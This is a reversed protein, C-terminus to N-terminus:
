VRSDHNNIVKAPVGFATSGAPIDKLVLAGAGILCDKGIQVSQIVTAGTGVHTGSGIRVMGSLTVGPALHVHDGIICDHDISAKTNVIANKGIRSGPQVIAGAMVQAGESVEVERSIVSAPHIVTVFSYGLSKFYDYIGRRKGTTGVSGLGNVLRVSDPSYQLIADDNGLLRIGLIKRDLNEPNCVTFGIIDASLTSLADVLVKSHGGGGIVILPLNM